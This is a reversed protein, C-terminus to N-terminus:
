FALPTRSSTAAPVCSSGVQSFAADWAQLAPLQAPGKLQMAAHQLQRHVRVVERTLADDIIRRDQLLLLM